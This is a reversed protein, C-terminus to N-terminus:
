LWDKYVFVILIVLCVIMTSFVIGTFAFPSQEFPLRVNMGYFSGVITPITLVVTLATFVKIIQNLNNTMITSYAGRINVISRLNEKTIQILQVSELSVDELIDREEETFKLIKGTQLSNYIASVRVLSNNFDYLVSEYDFFRMIDRNQIKEVRLSSTRVKKSISTLYDNYMANVQAFLKLLLKNKQTTFTKSNLMRELRPFPQPSVTIVADKKIAILLPATDIEDSESFAFRLFIYIIGDELEIRPVEHIDVADKLLSADLAYSDVLSELEELTPGEVYVWSNARFTPLALVEKEKGNKYYISIM